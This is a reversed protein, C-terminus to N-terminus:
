RARLPTQLHNAPKDFGALAKTNLALTALLPTRSPPAPTAGAPSGAAPALRHGPQQPAIDLLHGPQAPRLDRPQDAAIQGGARDDGPGVPPMAEGLAVRPGVDFEQGGDVLGM